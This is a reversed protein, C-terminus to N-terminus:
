NLHLNQNHAISNYQPRCFTKEKYIAESQTAKNDRFKDFWKIAFIHIEQNMSM